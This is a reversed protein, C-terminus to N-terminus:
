CKCLGVELLMPEDLIDFLLNIQHDPGLAEAKIVQWERVLAEAEEVPMARSCVVSVPSSLSATVHSKSENGYSSPNSVSTKLSSLLQKMGSALSYNTDQIGLGDRHSSRITWSTEKNASRYENLRGSRRGLVKSAAFVVCGLVTVFAVHGVLHGQVMWKTAVKGHHRSLDRKLQSSPTSMDSQSGNKAEPLPSRLNTPALQKVAAGLHQSSVLSALREDSVIRESSVAPSIIRNNLNPKTHSVGKTQKNGIAKKEHGFFSGQLLM